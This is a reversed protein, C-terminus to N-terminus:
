KQLCRHVCATSIFTLYKPPLYLYIYLSHSLLKPLNPYSFSFHQCPSTLINPPYIELFLLSSSPYNLPFSPTYTSYTHYFSPFIQLLISFTNASPKSIHLHLLILSSQIYIPLSIHIHISLIPYSYQLIQLLFPPPLPHWSM